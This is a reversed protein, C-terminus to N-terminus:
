DWTQPTKHLWHPHHPKGANPHSASNTQNMHLLDVDFWVAFAIYFHLVIFKAKGVEDEAGFPVSIVEAVHVLSRGIMGFIRVDYSAIKWGGM